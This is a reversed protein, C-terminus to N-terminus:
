RIYGKYRVRNRSIILVVTCKSIAIGYLPRNRINYAFHGSISVQLKMASIAHLVGISLVTSAKIDVVLIAFSVAAVCRVKATEIKCRSLVNQEKIDNTQGKRVNPATIASWLGRIRGSPSQNFCCDSENWKTKAHLSQELV